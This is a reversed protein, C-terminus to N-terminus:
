NLIYEFLVVEAHTASSKQVGRYNFAREYECLDWWYPTNNTDFKESFQSLQIM